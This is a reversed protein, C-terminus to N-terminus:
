KLQELIALARRVEEETNYLTFSMRASAPLGLAQHLPQACHFGSRIAIGEQDLVTAVENPSFGEVTFPVCGVRADPDEPGYVRVHPMRRLGEMAIRTLAHEHSAIADWGIGNLYEMAAVLAVAGEVNATGAEFKWPLEKLCLSCANGKVSITDLMDGGGLFPPMHRLHEQKGYLVGIGMPGLMKHGSFAYFDADLVAVDVKFHPVAQAGDVVALAGAEHTWRILDAVPSIWGTVNSVHSFAAAKVRPGLKSRFDDLDLTGDPKVSAMVTKAGRIEAALLWPILNSHHDMRTLLIEDGPQLFKATLSHAALNLAETTNRVFVIERWSRAGIFAAAKEHAEEYLKTAEQALTHVGRHINANQERYFRDIAKLVAEPKQTTAANDLYALPHGNILRSLIPFDARIRSIDMM